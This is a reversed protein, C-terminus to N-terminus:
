WKKYLLKTAWHNLRRGQLLWTTLKFGVPTKKRKKKSSKKFITFFITAPIQFIHLQYFWKGKILWNFLCVLILYMSTGKWIGISLVNFFLSKLCKTLYRSSACNQIFINLNFCLFTVIRLTKFVIHRIRGWKWLNDFEDFWTSITGLQNTHFTNRCGILYKYGWNRGLLENQAFIFFTFPLM